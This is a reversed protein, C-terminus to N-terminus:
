APTNITVEFGGFNGERWAGPESLPVCGFDELFFTRFHAKMMPKPIGLSTVTPGELNESSGPECFWDWVPYRNLM